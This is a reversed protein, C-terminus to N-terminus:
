FLTWGCLFRDLLEICDLFWAFAAFDGPYEFTECIKPSVPPDHFFQFKRFEGWTMSELFGKLRSLDVRFMACDLSRAIRSSFINKKSIWWTTASICRNSIDPNESKQEFDEVLIQQPVKSGVMIHLALWFFFISSTKLTKKVKDTNFNCAISLYVRFNTYM